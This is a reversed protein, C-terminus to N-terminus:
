EDEKKDEISGEGEDKRGEIRGEGEVTYGMLKFRFWVFYLSFFDFNDYSIPFDCSQWSAVFVSWPTVFMDNCAVTYVKNSGKLLM